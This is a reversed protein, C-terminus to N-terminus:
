RKEDWNHYVIETPVECGSELALTNGARMYFMGNYGYEVGWSNRVIWYDGKEDKDWGVVSVAHNVQFYDKQQEFVVIKDNEPKYNEFEDTVEFSCVIPGDLLAKKIQTAGRVTEWKNVTVGNYASVPWTEDKNANYCKAEGDCSFTAPNEAKYIRCTDTPIIWSKAKQFMLGSEGGLCSGGLGCNIISQVSLNHRPFPRGLKNVNDIYLRDNLVSTAAQAWCSGCYVPIHQNKPWTLYNYGDIDGWFIPTSEDLAGTKKVEKELGEDAFAKSKKELFPFRPIRIDFSEDIMNRNHINLLGSKVNKDTNAVVEIVPNVTLAYCNDFLSLPNVKPDAEVFLYGWRAVTDGYSLRLIWLYGIDPDVRSPDQIIGSVNVWANYDTSAPESYANIAATQFKFLEKSHNINCLLPGKKNLNDVMQDFIDQNKADGEKDSTIKAFDQLRFSHYDRSFCNPKNHIDEGNACDMCRAQQDCERATDSYWNNCTEDSLGETKLKELIKEISADEAKTQYGCSRQDNDAVCTMLMQPSLTRLPFSPHAISNFQDSVASAVAFAWSAGCQKPQNQNRLASLYNVENDGKLYEGYFVTDISFVGQLLSLTLVLTLTSKM